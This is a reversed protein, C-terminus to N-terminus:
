NRINRFCFILDTFVTMLLTNFSVHMSVITEEDVKKALLEFYSEVSSLSSLM